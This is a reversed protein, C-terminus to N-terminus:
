FNFVQIFLLFYIEKMICWKAFHKGAHNRSFGQNTVREHYDNYIHEHRIVGPYKIKQLDRNSLLKMDKLSEMASILKSSKELVDTNVVLSKKM